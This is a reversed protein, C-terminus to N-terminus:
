NSFVEIVKVPEGLVVSSNIINTGKLTQIRIVVPVRRNNTWSRFFHVGVMFKGQPATRHPWFINEIPNNNHPGKANMDIDLVAGSRGMRYRWFITENINYGIYQVYLDIDDATQWSLSVQVDGTQAGYLKLKNEIQHDSSQSGSDRTTRPANIHSLQSLGALMESLNKNTKPASKKTQTTNDSDETLPKDIVLKENIDEIDIPISDQQTIDNLTYTIDPINPQTDPTDSPGESNVEVMENLQLTHVDDYLSTDEDSSIDIIIIHKKIEESKVILVSLILLIIIHFILSFTFANVDINEETTLKNVKQKKLKRAYYTGM